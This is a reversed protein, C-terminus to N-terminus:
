YSLINRPSSMKQAEAWPPHHMFCCCDFRKNSEGATSVSPKVRCMLLCWASLCWHNISEIWLKWRSEVFQPLNCRETLYSVGGPDRAVEQNWSTVAATACGHIENTPPCEGSTREITGETQKRITSFQYLAGTPIKALKNWPHAM